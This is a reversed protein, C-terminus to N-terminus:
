RVRRDRRPHAQSVHRQPHAGALDDADGAHRAVALALERLGIEPM